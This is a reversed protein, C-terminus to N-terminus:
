LMGWQRLIPIIYEVPYALGFGASTGAARADVAEFTIGVVQNQGNLIPGGSSGPGFSAQSVQLQSSDRNSLIGLDVTWPLGTTPHGIVTMESLRALEQSNSIGLPQIDDPANDIVLLALDLEDRPGTAEIVQATLRL